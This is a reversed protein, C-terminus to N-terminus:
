SVLRKALAEFTNNDLDQRDLKAICKGPTFCGRALYGDDIQYLLVQFCERDPEGDRLQEDSALACTTQGIAVVRMNLRKACAAIQQERQTRTKRTLSQRFATALGRTQTATLTSTTTM